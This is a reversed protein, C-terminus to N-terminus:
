SAAARSAEVLRGAAREARTRDQASMSQASYGAKTKMALLTSLDRALPPDITRLLAVADQHSNGVAHVGLRACCLVDSAAVGAHVLLTVLADGAEKADAFAAITDAAEFFQIAKALRGIRVHEDCRVTRAM